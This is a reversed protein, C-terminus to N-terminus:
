KAGTRFYQSLKFRLRNIPTQIDSRNLGGYVVKGINKLYPGYDFDPSQGSPTIKKAYAFSGNKIYALDGNKDRFYISRYPDFAVLKNNIVVFSIVIIKKEGDSSVVHFFSKFGAYNCLTTFVDSIQDSVGYGRIIIHWVHDDIVPLEAPNDKINLRTWEFIKLVMEEDTLAGKTIEKSLQEYHYHRHFFDFIKLYLPISIKRVKYNVGQYTSVRINLFLFFSVLM